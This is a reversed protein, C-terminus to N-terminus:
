TLHCCLKTYGDRELFEDFYFFRQCVFIQWVIFQLNFKREKHLRAGDWTTKKKEDGKRGKTRVYDHCYIHQGIFPMFVFYEHLKTDNQRLLYCFDLAMQETEPWASYANLRIYPNFRLFAWKSKAGKKELPYFGNWAPKLRLDKMLASTLFVIWSSCWCIFRCRMYITYTGYHLKNKKESRRKCSDFLNNAQNIFTYKM